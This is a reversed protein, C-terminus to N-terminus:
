NQEKNTGVLMSQLIGEKLVPDKEEAWLKVMSPNKQCLEMAANKAGEVDTAIGTENKDMLVSYLEEYHAMESLSSPTVEKKNGIGMANNEATSKEFMNKLNLNFM